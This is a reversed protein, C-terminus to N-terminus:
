NCTKPKAADLAYKRLFQHLDEMQKVTYKYNDFEPMVRKLKKFDRAFYRSWTKKTKEGPSISPGKNKKHCALCKRFVYRGKLASGLEPDFKEEGSAALREEGNETEAREESAKTKKTETEVEESYSAMFAAEIIYRHINELQNDNIGAAAFDHKLERLKQYNDEFFSEWEQVTKESPELSALGQEEHCSRCTEIAYKGWLANGAKNDFADANQGSFLSVAVFYIATLLRM